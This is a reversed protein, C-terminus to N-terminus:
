NIDESFFCSQNTSKVFFKPDDYYLCALAPVADPTSASRPPANPAPGRRSTRRSLFMLSFEVGLLAAIIAIPLKMVKAGSVRQGRVAESLHPNSHIASKTSPTIRESSTAPQFYGVLTVPSGLINERRL